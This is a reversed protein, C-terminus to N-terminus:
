DKNGTGVLNVLMNAKLWDNHLLNRDYTILISPGECEIDYQFDYQSTIDDYYYWVCGKLEDNTVPNIIDKELFGADQLQELKLVEKNAIDPYGIDNEVSYRYSANEIADITRKLAEEKSKKISNDIVPFTILAIIGLIIIVALLEVLTFGKNRM